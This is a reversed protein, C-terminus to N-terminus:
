HNLYPTHANMVLTLDWIARRVVDPWTNSCIRFDCEQMSWLSRAYFLVRGGYKDIDITSMGWFIAGLNSLWTEGTLWHPLHFAHLRLFRLVKVLNWWAPLKVVGPHPKIRALQLSLISRMADQAHHERSASHHIEEGAKRGSWCQSVTIPRIVM